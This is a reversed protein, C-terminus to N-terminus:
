LGASSQETKLYENLNKHIQIVQYNGSSIEFFPQKVKYEKRDKLVEGFGKAGMKSHLGHVMVLYTNNDYYDLSTSLDTRKMDSIAKDILEKLKEAEARKESSFSYALKWREEGDHHIFEPSAIKALQNTYITQAQKGEDSNPYNLSVFNLAAKYAEFGDRKGIATAKLLEFKPVMETGDYMLIYDDSKAIVDNYKHNEFERYLQAYRYEPSSEDMALMSDPNRLLEAHRSDPHNNLIDNKYRSALDTQGTAEYIRFLHYKSPVVFREEPNFTLLKELREAALQNERFKEKYILGLQYYAFNRDKTLSDIEKKEKPVRAIYVEPKYLDNEAIPAAGGEEEEAGDFDFGAAKTSLRWNDELPRTGWRRRFDEKGRALATQNYFYFTSGQDASKKKGFFENDAIVQQQKASAISDQIAKEKLKSTYATFYALLEGESMAALKLISDNNMAISEYRIVDDLNERKKKVRRWERSKEEMFTLTSDYYAGATRYEAKDFNIEALSQYNKSQLIKDQKFNRISENYFKMATAVSDINRYYTATEYNIRDLYPRNERDERMKSLFEVLEERNGNEYDFNRVKEMHAAILYNRSTRRNMKIVEDFALNASDKEGLANYLQGKIFTYRGKLENDKVKASAIKMYELAQPLSDSLIYAQAIIAAGDVFDEEELKDQKFMRKLNEIASEENKLRINTKARWVRAKNVSNSGPYRDLIFNFADMAPIFRGEYYRAKGLLLYAEDIQPNHEKGNFYMSKKQIAKAAKEEARSFDGSKQAGPRDLLSEKIEIREVPLIEWFNDRYGAALQKQADEFALDGNYLINYQTSLANMNRNIFTDSKRSCAALLTLSLGILAGKYIFKMM